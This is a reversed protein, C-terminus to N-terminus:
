HPSSHPAVSDIGSSLQTIEVDLSLSGIEQEIISVLGDLIHFFSFISQGHDRRSLIVPLSPQLGPLLHHYIPDLLSCHVHHFFDFEPYVTLTPSTPSKQSLLTLFIGPNNQRFLQFSRTGMLQSTFPLLYLM